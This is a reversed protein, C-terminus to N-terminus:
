TIDGEGEPKDHEMLPRYSDFLVYDAHSVNARHVATNLLSHWVAPLELSPFLHDFGPFGHSLVAEAEQLQKHLVTAKPMRKEIGPSVFNM